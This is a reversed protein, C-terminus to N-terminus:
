KINFINLEFIKLVEDVIKNVFLEAAFIGILIYSQLFSSNPSSIYETDIINPAVILMSPAAIVIVTINNAKSM